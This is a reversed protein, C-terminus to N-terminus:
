RGVLADVIMGRSIARSDPHYTGDQVQSTLAQIRSARASHDASVARSLGGLGGSFEVRDGTAQASPGSERSGEAKHAEPPRSAEAGATGTLNGDYIKM